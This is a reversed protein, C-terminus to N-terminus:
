RGMKLILYKWSWEGALRGQGKPKGGTKLVYHRGSEVKTKKIVEKKEVV